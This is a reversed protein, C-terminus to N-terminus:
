QQSRIVLRLTPVMKLLLCKCDGYPSSHSGVDISHEERRLLLRRTKAWATGSLQPVAAAVVAAAQARDNL